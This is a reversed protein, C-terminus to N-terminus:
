ILQGGFLLSAQRTDYARALLYFHFHVKGAMWQVRKAFVQPSHSSFHLREFDISM